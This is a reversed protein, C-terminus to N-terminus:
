SANQWAVAATGLTTWLGNEADTLATILDVSAGKAVAADLITKVMLWNAYPVQLYVFLDAKKTPVLDVPRGLADIIEQDTPDHNFRLTRDQTDGDGRAVVEYGTVPVAVRDAGSSLRGLFYSMDIQTKSVVKM